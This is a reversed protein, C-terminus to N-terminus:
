PTLTPSSGRSRHDQSRGKEEDVGFFSPPPLSECQNDGADQGGLCSWRRLPECIRDTDVDVCTSPGHVVTDLVPDDSATPM